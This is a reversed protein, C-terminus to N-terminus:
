QPGVTCEPHSARQRRKGLAEERLIGCAEATGTIRNSTNGYNVLEMVTLYSLYNEVLVYYTIVMFDLQDENCYAM